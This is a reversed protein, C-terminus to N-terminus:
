RLHIMRVSMGLMHRKARSLMNTSPTTPLQKGVGEM